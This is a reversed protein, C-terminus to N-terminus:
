ICAVCYNCTSTSVHGICLMCMITRKCICMFRDRMIVACSLHLMIKTIAPLVGNCM